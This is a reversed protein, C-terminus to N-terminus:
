RGYKSRQPLFGEEVERWVKHVIEGVCEREVEYDDNDMKNIVKKYRKVDGDFLTIVDLRKVQKLWDVSAILDEVGYGFLIPFECERFPLAIKNKDCKAKIVVGVSREIGGRTRKLRKVQALYLVQSAYFDLARGGARITKRGFTVGINDRVQSIIIVTIRKKGLRQALRRFLQSMKKAKDAGYTKEDIDRGQEARDSLADLSDLIYLGPIKGKTRDLIAELHEFVDEATFCDEVFNVRDVPMGLAAAYARDFAAEVENYWVKGKPYTSIFNAAAEIALLTKGTSKDGVINAIRGEPWGGGLVCDLLVCGTSFFRPASPAAFYAGGSARLSLRQRKM